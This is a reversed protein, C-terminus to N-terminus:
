AAEEGARLEIRVEPPHQLSNHVTCREMVRLLPGHWKSELGEPLRAVLGVDAVRSPRDESLSYGCEVAMGDAPLGNRSLFRAGYFAVCAALGAVFLETPTPGLDTGGGEVPQDVLLEHDRIRVTFLAGERYRVDIDGM